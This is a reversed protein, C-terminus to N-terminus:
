AIIRGAALDHRDLLYSRIEPEIKASTGTGIQGRDFDVLESDAGLGEDFQLNDAYQKIRDLSVTLISEAPFTTPQRTAEPAGVRGRSRGVFFAIAVLVGAVVESVTPARVQM